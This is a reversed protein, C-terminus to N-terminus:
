LNLFRSYIFYERQNESKKKLDGGEAWDKATESNYKWYEPYLGLNLLENYTSEKTKDDAYVCLVPKEFPLPDREPFEKHTYKAKYIIGMGVLKDIERFISKFHKGKVIWKGSTKWDIVNDPNYSIIWVYTKDLM